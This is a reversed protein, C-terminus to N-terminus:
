RPKYRPTSLFTSASIKSVHKTLPTLSLFFNMNVESLGKGIRISVHHSYGPLQETAVANVERHRRVRKVGDVLMGPEMVPDTIGQVSARGNMVFVGRREDMGREDMGCEDQLVKDLLSKM